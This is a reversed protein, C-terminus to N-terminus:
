IKFMYKKQENLIQINLENLIKEELVDTSTDSLDEQEEKTLSNDVVSDDVITEGEQPIECIKNYKLRFGNYELVSQIETDCVVDFVIYFGDEDLDFRIDMVADNSLHKSKLEELIDLAHKDLTNAQMEKDLEINSQQTKQVPKESIDDPNNVITEPIEMEEYVNKLEDITLNFLIRPSIFRKTQEETWNKKIDEILTNKELKLKSDTIPNNNELIM